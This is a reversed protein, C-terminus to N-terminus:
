RDQVFKKKPLIGLASALDPRESSLLAVFSEEGEAGLRRALVETAAIWENLADSKGAQREQSLLFEAFLVIQGQKDKPLARMLRNIRAEGSAAELDELIESVPSETATLGLLYDVSVELIQAMAAMMPPDPFRRGKEYHSLAPQTLTFGMSVLKEVLEPQTLRAKERADKLNKGFTSASIDMVFMTADWKGGCYMEYYM